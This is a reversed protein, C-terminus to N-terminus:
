TRPSGRLAKNQGELRSIKAGQLQITRQAEALEQAQSDYNANHRLNTDRESRVDSELQYVRSELDHVRAVRDRLKTHISLLSDYQEQLLHNAQELKDVLNLTTNHMEATASSDKRLASAVSELRQGDREARELKANATSLHEELSLREEEKEETAQNAISLQQLAQDYTEKLPQLSTTLHREFQQSLEDVNIVVQQRVEELEGRLNDMKSDLNRADDITLAALQKAFDTDEGLLQALKPRGVLIKKLLTLQEKDKDDLMEKTIQSSNIQDQLQVADRRLEELEKGCSELEIKNRQFVQNWHQGLSYLYQASQAGQQLLAPWQSQDANPHALELQDITADRIRAADQRQANIQKLRDKVMDLAAQRSPLKGSM